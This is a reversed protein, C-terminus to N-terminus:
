TSGCGATNRCSVLISEDKIEVVSGSLEVESLFVQRNSWYTLGPLLVVPHESGDM